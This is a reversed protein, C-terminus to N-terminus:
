QERFNNTGTPDPSQEFIDVAEQFMRSEDREGLTFKSSNGDGFQGRRKQDTQPKKSKRIKPRAQFNRETKEMLKDFNRKLDEDTERYGLLQRIWLAQEGVKELDIEVREGEIEIQIVADKPLEPLFDEQTLPKFTKQKNSSSYPYLEEEEEEEEEAAGALGKNNTQDDKLLFDLVTEEEKLCDLDKDKRVIINDVREVALKEELTELNLRDWPDLKMESQKFSLNRRLHKALQMKIARDCLFAITKELLDAKRNSQENLENIADIDVEGSKLQAELNFLVKSMIIPKYKAIFAGTEQYNVLEIGDVEDQIRRAMTSLYNALVFESNFQEKLYWTVRARERSQQEMDDMLRLTSTCIAKELVQQELPKIEPPNEYEHWEGKVESRSSSLISKDGLADETTDTTTTDEEEQFNRREMEEEGMEEEEEEQDNMLKISNTWPHNELADLKAQLELRQRDAADSTTTDSTETTGQDGDENENVFAYDDGDDDEGEVGQGKEREMKEKEELSNWGLSRM